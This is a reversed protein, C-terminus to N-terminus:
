GRSTLGFRVPKPDSTLRVPRPAPCVAANSWREVEGGALDRRVFDSGECRTVMCQPAFAWRELQAGRFDRRVFDAGECAARTCTAANHWRGVEAGDSTRRRVQDAGECALTTQPPPMPHYPKCSLVATVILATVM